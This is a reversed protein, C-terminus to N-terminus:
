KRTGEDRKDEARREKLKSIVSQRWAEDAKNLPVVLEPHFMDTDSNPKGKLYKQAAEREEKFAFFRDLVESAPVPGSHTKKLAVGVADSPKKFPMNLFSARVVGTAFVTKGDLSEIQQAVIGVRGDETTIPFQTRVVVRQFPKIEKIYQISVGRVVPYIGAHWARTDLGTFAMEYWRGFEFMELYRANNVHGFADAMRFPMYMVCKSDPHCSFCSKVFEPQEEVPISNPESTAVPTGVLTAAKAADVRFRDFRGRAFFRLSRLTHLIAM